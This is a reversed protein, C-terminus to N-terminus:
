QIVRDLYAHLVFRYKSITTMNLCTSLTIITDDGTIIKDTRTMSQAAINNAFAAFENGNTFSRKIYGSSVHPKYYCFPKYIYLGDLTYIYVDHTRFFESDAFLTVDHFMAGGNINHGYIVSNYNDPLHTSTRYDLFIAGISLFGKAADHTLYFDNDTGRVVPYLINSDKVEIVAFVDPNQAQKERIYAQKRVLELRLDEDPDDIPNDPPTIIPEDGGNEIMSLDSITGPRSNKKLVELGGPQDSAGMESPDYVTGAMWKGYLNIGILVLCVVFVVGCVALISGRIIKAATVRRSSSADAAVPDDIEGVIVAPAEAATEEAAADPAEDPTQAENEGVTAGSEEAPDTQETEEAAEDSAASEPVAAPAATPKEAGDTEPELDLDLDPLAEELTEEDDKRFKDFLAM